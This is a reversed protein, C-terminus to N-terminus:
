DITFMPSAMAVGRLGAAASKEHRAFTEPPKGSRYDGRKSDAVLKDKSPERSRMRPMRQKKRRVIEIVEIGLLLQRSERIHAKRLEAHRTQAV